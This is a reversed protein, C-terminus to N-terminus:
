GVTLTPLCPADNLLDSAHVDGQQQCQAVHAVSTWSAKHEGNFIEDAESRNKEKAGERVEIFM